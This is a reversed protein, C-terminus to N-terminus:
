IIYRLLFNFGLTTFYTLYCSGFWIALLLLLSIVDTRVGFSSKSQMAKFSNLLFTGLDFVSISRYGRVYQLRTCFSGNKPLFFYSSPNTRLGLPIQSAQCYHQHQIELRTVGSFQGPTYSSCPSKWTERDWVLTCGAVTPNFPRRLHHSITILAWM